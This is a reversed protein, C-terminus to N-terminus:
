VLQVIGTRNPFCVAHNEINTARVQVEAQQATLTPTLTDSFTWVGRWVWLFPHACDFSHGAGIFHTSNGAWHWMIAPTMSVSHQTSAETLWIAHSYLDNLKTIVNIPCAGILLSITISFVINFYTFVNVHKPHLIEHSIYTVEFM